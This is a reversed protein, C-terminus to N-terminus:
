RELSDNNDKLISSNNSSIMPPSAPMDDLYDNEQHVDGFM